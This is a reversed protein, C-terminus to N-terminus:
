RNGSFLKSTNSIPTLLCKESLFKDDEIEDDSLILPSQPWAHTSNNICLNVEVLLGERRYERLTKNLTRKNIIFFFKFTSAAVRCTKSKRFFKAVEPNGFLLKGVRNVEDHFVVLRIIFM